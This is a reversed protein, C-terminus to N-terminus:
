SFLGSGSFHMRYYHQEILNRYYKFRNRDGKEHYIYDSIKQYAPITLESDCSVASEIYQIGTDDQLDLLIKGLLYNAKALYSKQALLNHLLPIASEGGKIEATWECLSWQQDFSLPKEKAEDELKQLKAAIEQFRQFREKWIFSKANKWELEKEFILSKLNEKKFLKEAASIPTKIESKLLSINELFGLAQLRSSLCPHTDETDTEENLAAKLWREKDESPIDMHLSNFMLCVAEPPQSSCINQQYITPWFSRKLLREKVSFNVLAQAMHQSGAIQAAYRDAEYEHIRSLVFTYADFRPIYWEFFGYFLVFGIGNSILMLADIIWLGSNPKRHQEQLRYLLQIWSQRVRYIWGTFRSHRGSLHGMEHAIVARFQEESLGQMLPLGIILYNQFWGFLGLRPRQVVGANFEDTLLIRHFKPTDLIKSLDDIMGFLKPAESYRLKKGEPKPFSVWLSRLLLGALIMSIVLGCGVGFSTIRNNVTQMTGIKIIVWIFFLILSLIYVYGIIALHLVHRKFNKPNQLANKEIRQVLTDFQTESLAM